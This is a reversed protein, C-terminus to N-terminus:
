VYKEKEAIMKVEAMFQRDQQLPRPIIFTMDAASKLDKLKELTVKKAIRMIEDYDEM